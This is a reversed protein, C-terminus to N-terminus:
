LSVRYTGFVWCGVWHQTCFSSGNCVGSVVSNQRDICTRLELRELRLAVLPDTPHLKVVGKQSSHRSKVEPYMTARDQALTKSGREGAQTDEVRHVTLMHSWTCCASDGPAITEGVKQRGTFTLCRGTPECNQQGTFTLCWSTPECNYIRHVWCM